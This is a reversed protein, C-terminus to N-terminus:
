HSNVLQVEDGAEQLEDLLPGIDWSEETDHEENFNQCLSLFLYLNQSAKKFRKNAAQKALRAKFQSQSLTGM